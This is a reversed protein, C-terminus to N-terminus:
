DVTAARIGATLAAPTDVPYSLTILPLAPAKPSVMVGYVATRERVGAADASIGDSFAMVPLGSRRLREQVREVAAQADIGDGYVFCTEAEHDHYVVGDTTPIRQTGPGLRPDDNGEAVPMGVAGPDIPDPLLSAGGKEAMCAGLVLDVFADIARPAPDDALAPSGLAALTLAALVHRM